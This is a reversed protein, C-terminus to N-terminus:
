CLLSVLIGAAIKNPEMATIIPNPMGMAMTRPTDLASVRINEPAGSPTIGDM